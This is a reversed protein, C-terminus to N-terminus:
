VLIRYRLLIELGVETLPLQEESDLEEVVSDKDIRTAAMAMTMSLVRAEAVVVDVVEGEVEEM